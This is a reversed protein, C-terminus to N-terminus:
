AIGHRKWFAAIDRDSAFEGSRAEAIATREDDALVYIAKIAASTVEKRIGEQDLWSEFSSGLHPNKKAM